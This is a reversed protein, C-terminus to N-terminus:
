FAALFAGRFLLEEASLIVIVWFLAAVWHARDTTRYLDAVVPALAPILAVSLRYIPYTLATMLAGVGIGISVERLGCRFWGRAQKRYAILVLAIVLLAYSGVITYIAGDGFQRMVLGWCATLLGLLPAGRLRDLAAM